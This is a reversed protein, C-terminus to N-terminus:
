RTSWWAWQTPKIICTPHESANLSRERAEDKRGLLALILSSVGDMGYILPDCHSLRRALDIRELGNQHDGRQM